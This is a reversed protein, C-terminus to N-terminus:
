RIVGVKRRITQKSGSANIELVLHYVGNNVADGDGNRGDWVTNQHLGADLTQGDILTKVPAGWLTFLKLTVTSKQTLYYTITTAERGAAFPNPYNTFASEASTGLVHGFGTYLPFNQGNTTAVSVASQTGLEVVDLSAADALALRFNVDGSGSQIDLTVGLTDTEGSPTIVVGDPVNFVIEASSIVGDVTTGTSTMLTAASFLATPDTVAGKTDQVEIRLTRVGTDTLGQNAGNQILLDFAPTGPQVASVNAPLRSTLDVTVQSSQMLLDAPGAIFPFAGSIGTVRAGDNTDFVTLNQEFLRIEVNDSTFFSKSNLYVSLMESTAPGIQVPTVFSCEAIPSVSSLSSVVSVTDTGHVITLSNFYDGPLLPLGGATRFELSLSDVRLSSASSDPHTLTIDMVPIGATSPLIAQPMQDTYSAMVGSAASQFVIINSGIPFDQSAPAPAAVTVLRSTNIDRAVV